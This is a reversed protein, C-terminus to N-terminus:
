PRFYLYHFVEEKKGIRIQGQYVIKLHTDYVLYDVSDQSEQGCFSIEGLEVGIREFLYDYVNLNRVTEGDYYLYNVQTSDGLTGQQVRLIFEAKGASIKFLFRNPYGLSHPNFVDEDLKDIRIDSFDADNISPADKIDSSVTGDYKLFYLEEIWLSSGFGPIYGEGTSDDSYYKILEYAEENDRSVFSLEEKELVPCPEIIINPNEEGAYYFSYEYTNEIDKDVLEHNEKVIAKVIRGDSGKEYEITRVINDGETRIPLHAIHNGTIDMSVDEAYYQIGLLYTIDLPGFPYDLDGYAISCYRDSFGDHITVEKIDKDSWNLDYSGHITKSSVLRGQNDKQYCNDIQEIKFSEASYGQRTQYKESYEVKSDSLCIHSSTLLPYSALYYLNMDNVLNPSLTKEGVIVNGENDKEYPICDYYYVPNAITISVDEGNWEYEVLSSIDERTNGNFSELEPLYRSQVIHGFEDYSFQWADIDGYRTDTRVLTTLWPGTFQEGSPEESPEASPEVDKSPETVTTEEPPDAVPTQEKGCSLM